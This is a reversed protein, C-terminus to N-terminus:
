SGWTGDARMCTQSKEESVRGDNTRVRIIVPKCQLSIRLDGERTPIRPRAVPETDAIPQASHAGGTAASRLMVKRTPKIPVKSLHDSSVYGVIVGNESVPHFRNESTGLIKVRTGAPLTYKVPYSTSPGSRLNVNAAAYRTGQEVLGVARPLEVDAETVVRRTTEGASIPDGVVIQASAGSHVSRWIAPESSKPLKALEDVRAQLAIRDREDLHQGILYGTTGGLVAGIAVGAGRDKKSSVKAGIVAGAIAGIISGTQTKDMPATSACSSLLMAGLVSWGCLKISNCM